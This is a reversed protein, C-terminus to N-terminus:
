SEKLPTLSTQTGGYICLPGSYIACVDTLKEEKEFNFADLHLKSQAFAADAEGNEVKALAQEMNECDIIKLTINKSKLINQAKELIEGHIKESSAVTIKTDALGSYDIKKNYGDTKQKVASRLFANYEDLIYDSVSQSELASKLALAIDGSKNGNKVTLVSAYDDFLSEQALAEKKPDIGASVADDSNLVIYDYESRKGAIEEPDVADFEIKQPNETINDTTFNGEVTEDLKIYGLDRILVLARNMGVEDSPIAVTIAKKNSCACLLVLVSVSVLLISLIKKM